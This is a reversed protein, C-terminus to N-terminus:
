LNLERREEPTLLEEVTYYKTIIEWAKTYITEHTADKLFYHLMEHIIVHVIGLEFTFLEKDVTTNYFITDPADPYIWMLRNYGPEPPKKLGFEEPDAPEIQEFISTDYGEKSMIERAKKFFRVLQRHIRKEM